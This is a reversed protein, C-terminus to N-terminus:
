FELQLRSFLLAVNRASQNAAGLAVSDAHGKGLMAYDVGFDLNLSSGFHYTAQVYIDTGIYKKFGPSASNHTYWGAAAYGDLREPIVPFAANVQVTTVGHGLNTNNAGGGDINLFHTDVGTDTPGQVNLKGTYGWYGTTGVISMPTIFSSSKRKTADTFDMDGSSYLAMVGAKAAGVPVKAEAKLAIGSNERENETGAAFDFRRKGWNYIAFANLEVTDLNTKYRLGVYDEYTQSAGTITNAPKSNDNLAYFSAGFGVGTDLDVFWQDIDDVPHSNETGERLNGHALRLDMDAIKGLLEYTLPNYDWDSSFLTDGFKDSMPILGAVLTFNEYKPIPASIYGQRLAVAPNGNQDFRANSINSNIHGINIQVHTKIGNDFNLDLAPRFRLRSAVIDNSKGFADDKTADQYYSNIRYQGHWVTEVASAIVSTALVMSFATNLLLTWKRIM